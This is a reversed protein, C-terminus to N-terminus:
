GLDKWMMEADSRRVYNADIEAPDQGHGRDLREAAIRAVAGALQKSASVISRGPATPTYNGAVLEADSPIGALWADFKMVTEGQVIELASNDAVRYVAGFIDGRRADMVPARLPATGYWAMAELNSVAIAPKGAAEALGKVATLGVRVGTFSGPGSSAAFCDIDGLVLRHRALLAEIEGFLIHAFGDPAEIALEELLPSERSDYLALSGAPSTADIALILPM